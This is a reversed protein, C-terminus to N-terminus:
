HVEFGPSVPADFDEVTVSEVRAAPPGVWLWSCFEAIAEPRGTVVVEVRGDRLNKAWGTLNLRKAEERATSRYWVGQVRGAVFCRVARPESSV